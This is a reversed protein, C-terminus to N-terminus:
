GIAFIVSKMVEEEFARWTTVLKFWREPLPMEDHQLM